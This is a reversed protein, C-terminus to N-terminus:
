SVLALALCPVFIYLIGFESPVHLAGFSDVDHQYTSKLQTAMVGVCAGSLVLAAIEVLHYIRDSLFLFFSPFSCVFWIFSICSFLRFAPSSFLPLLFSLLFSDSAMLSDLQATPKVIKM